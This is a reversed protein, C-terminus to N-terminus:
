YWLTWASKIPEPDRPLIVNRPLPPPPPPPASPVVSWRELADMVWAENAAYGYGYGYACAAVATAATAAGFWAAAGTGLRRRRSRSHRWRDGTGAEEAEPEKAEEEVLSDELEFPWEADGEAADGVSSAGDLDRDNPPPSRLSSPTAARPSPTAALRSRRSARSKAPSPTKALAPAKVPAAKVPATVPAKEPAKEPAASMEALRARLKRNEEELRAARAADSETAFPNVFSPSALPSARAVVRAIPTRPTAASARTEGRRDALALRAHPSAAASSARPSGSSSPSPTTDFIESRRWTAPSRARAALTPSPSAAAADPRFPPPTPIKTPFGHRNMVPTAPNAPSADRTPRADEDSMFSIRGPARRPATASLKGGSSRAATKARVVADGAASPAAVTRLYAAFEDYGVAGDGDRDATAFQERLFAADAATDLPSMLGVDRLLSKLESAVIRGDGDGDYRAFVRRVDRETHQSYRLFVDAAAVERPAMTRAVVLTESHRPSADRPLLSSVVQSTVAPHIVDTLRLHSPRGLALWIMRSEDMAGSQSDTETFYM